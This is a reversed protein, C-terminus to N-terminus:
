RMGGKLVLPLGAAVFVVDDAAAAVRQNLMGQLNRFSRALANEPVLGLGIENSVLIVRGRAGGLAAVLADTEAAADRGEGLLNSLWLTLCDVLISADPGDHRRIAHALELPAEVTEWTEGRRARHVAIKERMEGDLAEATAIYVPRASLGAALAEAHASKGSAAGGLVLTVRSGAV